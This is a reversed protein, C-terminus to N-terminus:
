ISFCLHYPSIVYIFVTLSRRSLSSGEGKLRAVGDRFGRVVLHDPMFPLNDLIVGTAYQFLLNPSFPLESSGDLVPQEKREKERHCKWSDVTRETISVVPNKISLTKGPEIEIPVSTPKEMKCPLAPLPDLLADGSDSTLM